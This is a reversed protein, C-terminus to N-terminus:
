DGSLETITIEYAGKNVKGMAAVVIQYMEVKAPVFGLRSNTGRFEYDDIKALIKNDLDKIYLATDFDNSKLDIAYFRRAHLQVKHKDVSDQTLQGSIKRENGKQFTQLNLSALLASGWDGLPHNNRNQFSFELLTRAKEKQDLKLYCAALGTIAVLTRADTKGLQSERAKAIKEFIRISKEPTQTMYRLSTGLIEQVQRTASDDEGVMNRCVFYCNENLELAEIFRNSLLHRSTIQTCMKVYNKVHAPGVKSSLHEVFDNVVTQAKVHQNALDYTSALNTMSNYTTPHFAVLHKKRLEYSRELIPIAKQYQQAAVYTTGLNNLASLFNPDSEDLRTQLIKICDEQLKMAKDYEQNKKYATGLTSMCRLTDPHDKGISEQYRDLTEILIPIALDLRESSMYFSAINYKSLLTDIHTPGLNQVRLKLVRQYLPLAQDYM